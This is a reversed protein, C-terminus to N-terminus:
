GAGFWDQGRGQPVFSMIGEGGDMPPLDVRCLFWTGADLIVATEPTSIEPLGSVVGWVELVAPNQFLWRAYALYAEPVELQRLREQLLEGTKGDSM